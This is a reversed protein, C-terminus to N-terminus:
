VVLLVGRKIIVIMTAFMALVNWGRVFRRGTTRVLMIALMAFRCLIEFRRYLRLYCSRERFRLNFFSHNPGGIPAGVKIERSFNRPKSIQPASWRVCRGNRQFSSQEILFGSRANESVRM